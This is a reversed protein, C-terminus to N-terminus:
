DNEHNGEDKVLCEETESTTNPLEGEGFYEKVTEHHFGAALLLRQVMEYMEEMVMGDSETEVTTKVGQAEYTLKM